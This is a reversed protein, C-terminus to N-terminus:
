EEEQNKYFKNLTNFRATRKKALKTKCGMIEATAATGGLMESDITCEDNTTAEFTASSTKISALLMEAANKDGSDESVAKLTATLRDTARKLTRQANALDQSACMNFERTNQAEDWCKKSSVRAEALSATLALFVIPLIFKMFQEQKPNHKNATADLAAFTLGV